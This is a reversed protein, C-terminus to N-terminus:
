KSFVYENGEEDCWAYMSEAIVNATYETVEGDEFEVNYMHSDLIPNNNARGKPNRSSDHRHSHVKGMSLDMWVKIGVYNNLAEPTVEEADPIHDPTDNSDDEFNGM